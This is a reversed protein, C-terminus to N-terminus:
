RPVFASHRPSWGVEDFLYDGLKWQEECAFFGGLKQAAARLIDATEDIFPLQLCDLGDLRFGRTSEPPRL